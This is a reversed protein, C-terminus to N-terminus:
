CQTETQGSHCGPTMTSGPGCHVAPIPLVALGDDVVAVGQGGLDEEFVDDLGDVLVGEDLVLLHVSVSECKKM